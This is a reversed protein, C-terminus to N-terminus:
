VYRPIGLGCTPSPSERRAMLVTMWCEGGATPRRTPSARYRSKAHTRGGVLSTRVRGLDVGARVQVLAVLVPPHSADRQAREIGELRQERAAELERQATQIRSPLRLP